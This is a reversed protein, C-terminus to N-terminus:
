DTSAPGKSPGEQPEVPARTGSGVFIAPSRLPIVAHFIRDFGRSEETPARTNRGIFRTPRSRSTLGTRVHGTEHGETAPRHHNSSLSLATADPPSLSDSR